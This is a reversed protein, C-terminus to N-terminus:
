ATVFDLIASRCEDPAELHPWHGAHPINVQTAKVARTAVIAADDESVFPDADGRLVLIPATITRAAELYQAGIMARLCGAVVDADVAAAAECMSALHEDALAEVLGRELWKKAGAADWGRIKIGEHVAWLSHLDRVFAGSGLLVLREVHGPYRAAFSLAVLAGYDHAIIPMPDLQNGQHLAHHLLTAAHEIDGAFSEPPSEGFGPFELMFARHTEPLGQTLLDWVVAGPGLGHLFLIASGRVGKTALNIRQGRVDLMPM